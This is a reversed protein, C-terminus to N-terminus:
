AAEQQQPSPLANKMAACVDRHETVLLSILTPLQDPTGARCAAEVEKCVQALHHAGRVASSSKITHAAAQVALLDHTVFAQQLQEILVPAQALYLALTKHLINPRDPRQLARINEWATKDIVARTTATPRDPESPHGSPADATPIWRSLLDQLKQLTFPKTLYDDMGAALCRERDGEM